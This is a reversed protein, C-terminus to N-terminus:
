QRRLYSEGELAASHFGCLVYLADELPEWVARPDVLVKVAVPFQQIDALCLVQFFTDGAVEVLLCEFVSFGLDENLFDCVDLENDDGCFHVGKKQFVAQNFLMLGAVVNFELVVFGVRGDDDSFLCKGPYVGRSVEDM